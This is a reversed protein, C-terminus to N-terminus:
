INQQSEYLKNKAIEIEALKKRTTVKDLLNNKKLARLKFM